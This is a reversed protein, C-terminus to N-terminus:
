PELEWDESGDATNLSPQEWEVGSEPAPLPTGYVADSTFVVPSGDVACLATVREREVVGAQHMPAIGTLEATMAMADGLERMLQRMGQKELASKFEEVPLPTSAAALLHRERWQQTAAMQELTGRVVACVGAVMRQLADPHKAKAWGIVGESAARHEALEAMPEGVFYFIAFACELEVDQLATEMNEIM